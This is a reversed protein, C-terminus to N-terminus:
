VIAIPEDLKAEVKDEFVGGLWGGCRVWGFRVQGAPDRVVVRYVAQYRSSWFFPGRRFLTFEARVIQYGNDTAWKHLLADSRKVFGYIAAGMAIVVLGVLAGEVGSM